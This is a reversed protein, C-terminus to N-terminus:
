AILGMMLAPSDVARAVPRVLRLSRLLLLVATVLILSGNAVHATVTLVQSLGEAEVTYGAAFPLGALWGPWSYKVVWSAGGLVLQLATLICLVAAPRRLAAAEYDFEGSEPRALHSSDSIQRSGSGNRSWVAWALIFVHLLLVGAMILHFFLAVRFVSPSAELPVHRLLAGLVLQAYAFLSTLLALRHLKRADEHPQAAAPQKWLRSTFVALAVCLAFFAPGVCGHLMAVHRADWLVRLGGLVGQGIVAALAAVAVWRMWGRRDCRFVAILFAITLLGVAAGLLRHGHEIFLDWPGFVWTEWPYLLLNYGYTTPWDPVAMGADYTTVLGGVWILPFTACVLMVALRHPWPSDLQPVAIHKM